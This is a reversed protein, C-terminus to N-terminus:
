GSDKDVAISVVWRGWWVFRRRFREKKVGRVGEIGRWSEVLGREGGREGEGFWGKGRGTGEVVERIGMLRRNERSLSSFGGAPWEGMVGWALGRRRIDL